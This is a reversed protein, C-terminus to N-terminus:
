RVFRLVEITASVECAVLVYHEGDAHVVCIGEPGCGGNPADSYAAINIYAPLGVETMSGVAHPDTIDFMAVGSTRELGLFAYVRGDITALALGEPELGRDDSRTDFTAADGNSNFCDPFLLATVSRLFVGSDSVARGQENFISMSRTGFMTPVDIDGDGDRDGDISSIELRGLAADDRVGGALDPYLLDLISVVAPDLTADGLRVRDDARIDGENATVIYRAGDVVYSAIADPMPMGAVEDDIRAQGDADSADITQIHVGLSHVATWTRGALDFRALANNEQLSVWAGGNDPAIYEPELDLWPTDRNAPGIRLGDLTVGAALNSPSLDYTAADSDGLARVDHLTRVGGLDVVTIGGAPDADEGPEGENAVLVARGDPTFTVMDPHFGVRVQAIVAGTATELFVLTGPTTDSHEPIAAAASFGRGSPDIAVSSVDALSPVAAHLDISGAPTLTGADLRYLDLGGAHTAYLTGSGPEFALIEAGGSTAITTAVHELSPQAPATSALAAASAAVLRVVSQLSM